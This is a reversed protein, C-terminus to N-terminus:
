VRAARGRPAHPVELEFYQALADRVDTADTTPVADVIAVAPQQGLPIVDPQWDGVFVNDQLECIKHLINCCCECANGSAYGSKEFIESFAREM